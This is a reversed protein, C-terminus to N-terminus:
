QGDGPVARHRSRHPHGPSYGLEKRKPGKMHDLYEALASQLLVHGMEAGAPSLNNGTIGKRAYDFAICDHWGELQSFIRGSTFYSLYKSRFAPFDKHSTNFGVFGTETYNKRGFYCFPVGELLGKLFDEPIPKLIECDADIWFVHEDEGFVADQAFVKRCFASANYRFDYGDAGYGDSGAVRKIRELYRSAEPISFFDRFEVRGSWDPKEEYYAVIRGPFFQSLSELCRKGYKRFGEPHFTTVALL